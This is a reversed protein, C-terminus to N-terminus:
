QRPRFEFVQEFPKGLLYAVAEATELLPLFESREWRSVQGRDTPYGMDTLMGALEDQTWDKARRLQRLHVIVPM